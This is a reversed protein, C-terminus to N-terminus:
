DPVGAGLAKDGGGSFDDAGVVAVEAVGDRVDRM